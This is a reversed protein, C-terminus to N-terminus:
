LLGWTLFVSIGLMASQGPETGITDPNIKLSGNAAAWTTIVALFNNIFHAIIPLWLSGSWYMMYGLMVGLAFRPIFGYFQMHMASFLIASLIIGAHVNGSLDKFLKQILGRFLFEEGLAPIVAMLFINFILGGITSSKVLLKTIQGANSEMEKMWDELGKMSPPLEMLSNAMMMWNIFPIAVLLLIVAIVIQQSNPKKVVGLYEKADNTFLWAAFIPPLLFTGIASVLQIIKLADIVAPNTLDSLAKPDTLVQIGTIMTALLSGLASFIVGSILAIGVLILFKKYPTRDALLAKFEM